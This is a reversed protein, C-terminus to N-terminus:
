IFPDQFGVNLFVFYKKLKFDIELELLVHKQNVEKFNSFTSNDFKEFERSCSISSLIMSM